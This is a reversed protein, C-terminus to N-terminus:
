TSDQSNPETLCDMTSLISSFLHESHTELAHSQSEILTLTEKLFPAASNMCCLLMDGTQLVSATLPRHTQVEEQFSKYDALSAKVSEIDVSPPSLEDMKEVVKHLWQILKELNSCFTQLHQLLSDQTENSGDVTETEKKFEYWSMGGLQDVIAELDRLNNRTVQHSVGQVRNDVGKTREIFPIGETSRQVCSVEAAQKEMQVPSFRVSASDKQRSECDTTIPQSIQITIDNLKQSLDQIEKLQEPLHLFEEDWEGLSGPHPLISISRIFTPASRSTSFIGCKKYHFSDKGECDLSEVSLGVQELSSNISRSLRLDSSRSHALNKLNLNQFGFTQSSSSGTKGKRMGSVPQDLFSLSSSSLFSEVEIGSDQLPQDTRLIQENSGWTNTMNPRLPYTYDLLSQYEKDPDWSPSKRNPSPPLTSPIACSWYTTQHHSMRKPESSYSKNKSQSCGTNYLSPRVQKSERTNTRQSTRSTYSHPIIRQTSTLKPSLPVTLDLDDLFSSSLNRREVKNTSPVPCFNPESLNLSAFLDERTSSLPFAIIQPVRTSDLMNSDTGEDQTQHNDVTGMHVRESYEHTSPNKLISIQHETSVLPKRATYLSKGTMYRSTPAMTVTKKSAASERALLLRSRDSAEQTLHRTYGSRIFKPIRSKHSGYNRQEMQSLTDSLTLEGNKEALHIF